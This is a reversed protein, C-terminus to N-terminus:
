LINCIIQSQHYIRVFFRRTEPQTSKHDTLRLKFKLIPLMPSNCFSEHSKILYPVHVVNFVFFYVFNNNTFFFKPQDKLLSNEFLTRRELFFPSQSGYCRYLVNKSSIQRLRAQAFNSTPLNFKIQLVKRKSPLHM